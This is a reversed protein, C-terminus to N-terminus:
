WQYLFVPSTGTNSGVNALAAFDIGFQSRLVENLLTDEKPKTLLKRKFPVNTKQALLAHAADLGGLADVLGLKLAEEGTFIKGDALATAKEHPMNRGEAVIAVFQGHMNDLVSKFYAKDTPSLPRMPSGADKFPGTVITEQGVGIKGMLGQLQPIDMRVGISGTVTSANAFIHEGAMAVMLGGSAATSGMSVVIPRTASLRKLADYIEQSAAAGGGPSDVRLLVGKVDPNQELKRIWALTPSADMIPGRVSILALRANSGLLSNSKDESFFFLPILVVLALLFGWFIIPHRKRFPKRAFLKFFEPWVTPPIQALPCSTACAPAAQKPTANATTAVPTGPTNPAAMSIPADPSFASPETPIPPVGSNADSNVGLNTDPSIGFNADSSIGLNADSSIGFNADPSVGLSADSNQAEATTNAKDTNDPTLSLRETNM